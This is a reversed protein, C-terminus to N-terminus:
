LNYLQLRTTTPPTWANIWRAGGGIIAIHQLNQKLM